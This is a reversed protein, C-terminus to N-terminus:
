PIKFDIDFRVRYPDEVDDADSTLVWLKLSVAENLVYQGGFVVGEMGEGTGTGAIPTDDQAVPSFVADADLDYYAAFVNFDGKQKSRGLQVGLAFGSDEDSDDADVNQLLQAFGTLGGMPGDKWTVAAFTDWIAFDGTVDINGQNGALSEGLSSWDSLSSAIQVQTSASADFWLNAQAGVMAPDDASGNEEAVYAAARVDFRLSGSPAPSWVAGIGAPQVDEDWAFEGAVPPRSFVHAAKGGTLKLEDLAKWELFARDLAINAATFGDAGDGFDWHPNNADDGDSQTTLRAGVKIRDTLPYEAALRARIRGRHRDEDSLQDFTSEGRLRGNAQVKLKDWPSSPAPAAVAGAQQAERAALATSEARHDPPPQTHTVSLLCLASLIM